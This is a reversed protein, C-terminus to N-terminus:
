VGEARPPQPPANALVEGVLFGHVILYVDLTSQNSKANADDRHKDDSRCRGWRRSNATVLKTACGTVAQDDVRRCPLDPTLIQRLITAVGVTIKGLWLRILLFLCILAFM